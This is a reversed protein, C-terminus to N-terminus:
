EKSYTWLYEEWNSVLGAKVPNMLIYNIVNKLERQSRIYRDYSDKRWFTGTRGLLRNAAFATSGKIRRMIQHLQQYDAPTEPLFQQAEDVIQISTDFLVHVHNPMICYALLEYLDGDLEELKTKVISAVGPNRLYCEGLAAKDMFQEYREFLRDKEKTILVEFGEPQEEELEALRERFEKQVEAVM